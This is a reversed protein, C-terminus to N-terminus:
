ISSAYTCCLHYSSTLCKIKCFFFIFYFISKPWKSWFCICTHLTKVKARYLDMLGNLLVDSYINSKGSNFANAPSLIFLSIQGPNLLFCQPFHSFAPLGCKRRKGCHNGFRDREPYSLITRDLTLNRIFAVAM